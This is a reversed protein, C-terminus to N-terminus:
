LKVLQKPQLMPAFWVDVQQMEEFIDRITEAAGLPALLGKLYQKAFNDHPKRTM